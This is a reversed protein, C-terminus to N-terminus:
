NSARYHMPTIGVHKKFFSSFHNSEKFGLEYAITTTSFGQLLMKQSEHIIKKSILEHMGVGIRQKVKKSFSRPTMCLENAYFSLMHKEKYYKDILTLVDTIFSDRGHVEYVCRFEHPAMNTHLKFFKNFYAADKFGLEYAIEKTSMDTFVVKRQAELLIKKQKLQLVTYCLKEKSLSQIRNPAENLFGAIDKLTIPERFKVDVVDKLDFLLEVESMTASFPNQEVWRNIANSLLVVSSQKTELQEFDNVKVYGVSVLHKFLLRSNVVQQVSNAPFDLVEIRFHGSLLQFYQGPSLFIAKGSSYGYNKFDIQFLGDGERIFLLCYQNFSYVQYVLPTFSRM